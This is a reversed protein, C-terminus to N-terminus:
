LFKQLMFYFVIPKFILLVHILNNILFIVLEFILFHSANPSINIILYLSESISFLIKKIQM